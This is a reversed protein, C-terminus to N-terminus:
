PTVAGNIVRAVALVGDFCACRHDDPGGLPRECGGRDETGDHFDQEDHGRCGEGCAPCEPADRVIGDEAHAAEQELLAALPECLARSVTPEDDSYPTGCLRCPGPNAFSGQPPQLPFRHECRLTKVAARLEEAPIKTGDTM